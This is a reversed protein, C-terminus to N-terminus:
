LRIGRQIFCLGLSGPAGQGQSTDAQGECHQVVNVNCVGRKNILTLFARGM